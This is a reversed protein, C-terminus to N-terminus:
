PKTEVKTESIRKLGIRAVEACHSGTWPTGDVSTGGNQAIVQLWGAAAAGDMVVCDKPAKSLYTRLADSLLHVADKPQMLKWEKRCRPCVHVAELDFEVGGCRTCVGVTDFSSSM